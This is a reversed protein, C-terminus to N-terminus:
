FPRITTTRSTSRAVGQCRASTSLPTLFPNSKTVLKETTSPVTSTRVCECYNPALAPRSYMRTSTAKLGATATAAGSAMRAVLKTTLSPASRTGTPALVARTRSYSRSAASTRGTTPTSVPTKRTLTTLLLVGCRRTTSCTSTLM